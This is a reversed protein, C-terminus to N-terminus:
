GRWTNAAIRRHRARVSLAPRRRRRRSGSARPPAAAASSNTIRGSVELRGVAAELRGLKRRRRHHLPLNDVKARRAAVEARRARRAAAALGVLRRRRGRAAAAAAAAAQRRRRCIPALCRPTSRRRCPRTSHEDADHAGGPQRAALGKATESPAWRSRVESAAIRRSVIAAATGTAVGRRHVTGAAAQVRRHPVLHHHEAPVAGVRQPQLARGGGSSKGSPWRPEHATINVAQRRLLRGPEFNIQALLHERRRRRAPTPATRVSLARARARGIGAAGGHRRRRRRRIARAALPRASASRQSRSATRRGAAAPAARRRPSTQASVANLADSVLYTHTCLPAVRTRRRGGGRSAAHRAARGERGPARRGREGIFAQAGDRRVAHSAAEAMAALPAAAPSALEPLFMGALVLLPTLVDM